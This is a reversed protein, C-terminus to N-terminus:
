IKGRIGRENECTLLLGKSIWSFGIGQEYNFIKYFLFDFKNITQLNGADQRASFL